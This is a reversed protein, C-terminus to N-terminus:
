RRNLRSGAGIRRSVVSPRNVNRMVNVRNCLNSLPCTLLPLTLKCVFPRPVKRMASVVSLFLTRNCRLKRVKLPLGVALKRLRRCRYRLRKM